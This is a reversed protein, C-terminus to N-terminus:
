FRPRSVMARVALALDDSLDIGNSPHSISNCTVIQAAGAAHLAEYADGAFIGHVAICVAGGLAARRLHGVTEIMTRATSVIDDVLVPTHGRWREVEPVAVRVDHDGLRTKGLVLFPAGADAAVASVWQASESDPGILLPRAVNARIWAAVHPAAHVVTSPITYIESLSSRRHLHPDVTVLWDVARSLLAAFYTSTIGEGDTFRRDQRMYALYPAVLGVSSAGLDRVTAALFLLPLIKADPQDLTCVLVVPQGRVDCHIRVYTEGDPFNRLAFAGTRVADDGRHRLAVELGSTSAENHPFPLLLTM